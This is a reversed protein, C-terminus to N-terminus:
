CLIVVSYFATWFSTKNREGTGLVFGFKKQHDHLTEYDDGDQTPDTPDTASGWDTWENSGQCKSKDPVYKTYISELETETPKTLLKEIVALNTM